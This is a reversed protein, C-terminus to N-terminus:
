YARAFYARYRAEKGCRVCKMGAASSKERDLPICRATVGKTEEKIAEECAADGCHPALILRHEKDAALFADWALAERVSEDLFRKAKGYLTSQIADLTRRVEDRMDALPVMRKEGTDRRVLVAQRQEVDRPGIEIRLPTGALEHENFKWGASVEDREDLVPEYHKLEKALDRALALTADNKEQEKVFVPVIAVKRRAMAPPVVLGKDDGHSMILAGLMRTSMGWSNQWPTEHEGSTGLFSIGFSTAFGQGLMHSTGMQLAKGDPMFGEITYSRAAGAFTESATKKGMIVPVAMLEEAVRRYLELYHLTEQECEKETAYVCHGEQWLFERTRLFIKTDKVEWRVINCWQNIRLPLDRWSRIWRSYSDYMITESTPRIALREQEGDQQAIWAVEPRFGKAHTAEKQFFSEPILLPFYANEVGAEKILRDLFAQIAEWLAYGRPRIIMFGRVPAYDAVEAKVVAQGYWEAMDDAKRVTIGKTNQKDAM